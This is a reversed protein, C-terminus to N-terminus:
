LVRSSEYSACREKEFGEEEIIGILHELFIACRESALKKFNDYMVKSQNGPKDSISRIVVFPIKCLSCVQAVAAGEMENCYAGFEEYLQAKKEPSDNFQDGTAIPGIFIQYEDGIIKKIAAKCLEAFNPDAEVFGGEQKDFAGKEIGFVTLDVDHQICGTSIVVDGINLDPHLAGASGLNVIKSPEFRDILLQTCRAANVKGIGSMVITCPTHHILGQYFKLDYVTTAKANKLKELAADRETTVATIIGIMLKSEM